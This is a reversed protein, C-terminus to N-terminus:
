SQAQGNEKLMSIAYFVYSEPLEYNRALYDKLDKFLKEVKEIQDPTGEVIIEDGRAILRMGLQEEIIRLHIDGIGFLRQLDTDELRFKKTTTTEEM